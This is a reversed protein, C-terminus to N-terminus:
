ILLTPNLFQDQEENAVRLEFWPDYETWQHVPESGRPFTKVVDFDPPFEKLKEILESVTM